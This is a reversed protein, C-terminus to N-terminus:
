TSEKTPDILIRLTGDSVSEVQHVRAIRSDFTGDGNPAIIHVEIKLKELNQCDGELHQEAIRNSSWRIHM